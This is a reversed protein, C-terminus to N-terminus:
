PAVESSGHPGAAYPGSFPSDPMGAAYWTEEAQAVLPSGEAMDHRVQEARGFLDDVEEPGPRWEEFLRGLVAIGLEAYSFRAPDVADLLALEGLNARIVAEAERSPFAGVPGDRSARIRAVLATILRVDCDPGFRSRLSEEMLASSFAPNRYWCARLADCVDSRGVLAVRLADVAQAQEQERPVRSVDQRKTRCVRHVVLDGLEHLRNRDLRLPRIM